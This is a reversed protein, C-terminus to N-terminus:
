FRRRIFNSGFRGTFIALAGPFGALGTVSLSDLGGEKIGSLELWDFYALVSALVSGWQGGQSSPCPWPVHSCRLVCSANGLTSRNLWAQFRQSTRLLPVLRPIFNSYPRRSPVLLYGAATPLTVVHQQGANETQYSIVVSVVFELFGFFSLSVGCMHHLLLQSGLFHLPRPLRCLPLFLVTGFAM